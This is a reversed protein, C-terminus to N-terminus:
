ADLIRAALARGAPTFTQRTLDIAPWRRLAERVLLSGIGRRQRNPRVMINVNGPEELWITEGLLAPDALPAGDPYYYLIGTLDGRSNRHLLTEVNTRFRVEVGACEGSAFEVGEAHVYEIGPRGKKPFQRAQSAWSFALEPVSAPPLRDTDHM